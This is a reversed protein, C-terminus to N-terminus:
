SGLASSGVLTATVVFRDTKKGFSDCTALTLTPGNTTLPIGAGSGVSEQAVNTVSYTYSHTSSYVTIHDGTKLKQIGDFTKYARNIVVPLYSSHGFIVVNGNQGLTASTPYRVAGSLLYEDLKEINTTAPNAITASLGISSAVIKVPMEGNMNLSGDAPAHASSGVSSGSTGQSQSTGSTEGQSQLTFGRDAGVVAALPSKQLPLEPITTAPSTGRLTPIQVYVPNPIFGTVQCIRVMAILVLLFVVLFTWKRSYAQQTAQILGATSTAANM